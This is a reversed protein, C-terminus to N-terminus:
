LKVGLHLSAPVFWSSKSVVGKFGLQDLMIDLEDPTYFLNKKEELFEFDRRLPGAFLKILATRLHFAFHSRLKVPRAADLCAILGGPKLVRKIERIIDPPSLATYLGFSIAVVDFCEDKFPLDYADGKIFEPETGDRPMGLYEARSRAVDLMEDCFDLGIIRTINPLQALMLAVDGTGCCVDLSIGGGHEYVADALESKWTGHRGLSLINNMKDYKPSIRSFLERLEAQGTM